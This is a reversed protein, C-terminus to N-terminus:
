PRSIKVSLTCIPVKNNVIHFYNNVKMIEATDIIKTSYFTTLNIATIAKNNYNITFLIDDSWPLKCYIYPPIYIDALKMHIDNAQICAVVGNIDSKYSNNKLPLFKVSDLYGSNNIIKPSLTLNSIPIGKFDKIRIVYIFKPSYYESFCDNSFFIYCRYGVLILLIIIPFILFRKM